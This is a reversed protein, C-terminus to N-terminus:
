HTSCIVLVEKAKHLSKWCNLVVKVDEDGLGGNDRADDLVRDIKDLMHEFTQEARLKVLDKTEM